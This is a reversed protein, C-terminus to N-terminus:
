IMDFNLVIVPIADDDQDGDEVIKYGSNSYDTKQIFADNLESLAIAQTTGNRDGFDTGMAILLDDDYGSSLEEILQEVTFCSDIMHDLELNLSLVEIVENEDDGHEIIKYGSDSYSSHDIFAEDVSVVPIAQMTDVRDGYSIGIVVLTKKDQNLLENLLQAKNLTTFM